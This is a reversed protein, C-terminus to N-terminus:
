TLIGALLDDLGAKIREVSLNRERRQYLFLRAALPALLADALYDADVDPRAQALLGALHMREVAYAGGEFWATLSSTEAFVLM